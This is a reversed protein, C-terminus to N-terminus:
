SDLANQKSKITFSNLIIPNIQDISNIIFAVTIDDQYTPIRSSTGPWHSRDEVNIELLQHSRSTEKITWLTNWWKHQSMMHLRNWLCPFSKETPPAFIPPFCDLCDFDFYLKIWYTDKLFHIRLTCHPRPCLGLLQPIKSVKQTLLFRQITVKLQSSWFFNPSCSISTARGITAGEAGGTGTGIVQKKLEVWQVRTKKKFQYSSPQSVAVALAQWDNRRSTLRATICWTLGLERKKNDSWVSSLHSEEIRKLAANGDLRDKEM